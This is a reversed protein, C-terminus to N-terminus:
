ITPHEQLKNWNMAQTGKKHPESVAGEWEMQAAQDVTNGKCEALCESEM